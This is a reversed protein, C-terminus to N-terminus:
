VEMFDGAEDRAAVTLTLDKDIYLDEEFLINRITLYAQGPTNNEKSLHALVVKPVDCPLVNQHEGASVRQHRASSRLMRCLIEGAAENSLHGKEGLIRRKLSYPYAGMKLINVEHNAELVLLDAAAIHAEIEPSICGTDTVITLRRGQCQLTYGAPEAADHSLDFPTVRIDGIDWSEGARVASGRGPAIMDSVADLTGGTAFVKANVAKRSVMRLSRVHDIHEHTILIGSLDGPELGKEALGAFVRKGTIGVDVLLATNESKVLYCNGSSGSAFSCFRLSM